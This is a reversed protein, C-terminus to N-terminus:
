PAKELVEKEMVLIGEVMSRDPSTPLLPNFDLMGGGGTKDLQFAEAGDRVLEVFQDLHLKLVEPHSPSIVTM